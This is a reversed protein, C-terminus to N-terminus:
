YASKFNLSSILNTFTKTSPSVKCIWFIIALFNFEVLLM